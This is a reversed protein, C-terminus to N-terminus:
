SPVQSLSPVGPSGSVTLDLVPLFPPPPPPDKLPQEEDSGSIDSVQLLPILDIIEDQVVDQASEKPLVPREVWDVDEESLVSESESPFLQDGRQIDLSPPTDQAEVVSSTQSKNKRAKKKKKKGNNDDDDHSKARKKKPLDTAVSDFNFDLTYICRKSASCGCCYLCKERHPDHKKLAHGCGKGQKWHHSPAESGGSHGAKYRGEQAPPSSM